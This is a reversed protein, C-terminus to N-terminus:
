GAVAAGFRGPMIGFLAYGARELRTMEDWHWRASGPKGCACAPTPLTALMGAVLTVVAVGGSILLKRGM